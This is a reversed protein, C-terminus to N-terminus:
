VIGRKGANMPSKEMAVILASARSLRSAFTGPRKTCGLVPGWWRGPMMEFKNFSGPRNKGARRSGTFKATGIVANQKRTENPDLAHMPLLVYM